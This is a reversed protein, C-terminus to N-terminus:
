RRTVKMLMAAYDYGVGKNRIMYDIARHHWEPLPGTPTFPPPTPPAAQEQAQDSAQEYSLTGQSAHMLEVARDHHRPKGCLENPLM